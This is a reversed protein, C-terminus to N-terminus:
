ANRQMYDALTDRLAQAAAHQVRAERAADEPLHLTTREYKSGEWETSYYDPRKEQRVFREDYRSQVIGQPTQAAEWVTPTGGGYDVSVYAGRLIKGPAIRFWKYPVSGPFPELFRGDVAPIGRVETMTGTNIYTCIGEDGADRLKQFFGQRASATREASAAKTEARKVKDQMTQVVDAREYANLPRGEARATPQVETAQTYASSGPTRSARRVHYVTTGKNTVLTYYPAGNALWGAQTVPREKGHFRLTRALVDGAEALAQAGAQKKDLKAQASPDTLGWVRRIIQALKAGSVGTDKRDPITMGTLRATHFDLHFVVNRYYETQAIHPALVVNAPRLPPLSVRRGAHPGEPSVYDTSAALQQGVALLLVADDVAETPLATSDFGAWLLATTVDHALPVIENGIRTLASRHNGEPAEGRLAVERAWWDAPPRPHLTYKKGEIRVPIPMSPETTGGEYSVGSSTDLLRQAASTWAANAPRGLFAVLAASCAHALAPPTPM